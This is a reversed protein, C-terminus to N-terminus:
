WSRSRAGLWPLAVPMQSGSAALGRGPVGVPIRAAARRDIESEAPDNLRLELRGPINDRLNARV